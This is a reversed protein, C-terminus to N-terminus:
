ICREITMALDEKLDSAREKCIAKNFPNTHDSLANKACNLLLILDCIEMRDFTITYKRKEVQM